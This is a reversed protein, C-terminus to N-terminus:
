PPVKNPLAFSSGLDRAFVTSPTIIDQMKEPGMCPNICFSFTSMSQAFPPWILMNALLIAVCHHGLLIMLSDFFFSYM